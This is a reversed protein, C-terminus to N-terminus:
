KALQLRFYFLWLKPSDVDFQPETHNQLHFCNLRRLGRRRRRRGPRCRLVSSVPCVWPPSKQLSVRPFTPRREKRKWASSQLVVTMVHHQWRAGTLESHAWKEMVPETSASQRKKTKLPEESLGLTTWRPPCTAEWHFVVAINRCCFETDM